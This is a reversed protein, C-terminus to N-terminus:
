DNMIGQFNISYIVKSLETNKIFMMMYIPLYIAKDKIDVNSNSLVIAKEINYEKNNTVNELANHKKYEKGSKVEIPCVKGDLEIVFDLEGQKKSNFYYLPIEKSALEQAIVNEFLSGNNIDKTKNLINIKTQNPYLSTLLGVDSYFLKFLSRNESLILPKKPEQINYVPLEVSANKM